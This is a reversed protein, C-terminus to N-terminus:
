RSRTSLEHLRGPKGSFVHALAGMYIGAIEQQESASM